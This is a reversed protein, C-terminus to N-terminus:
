PQRKTCTGPVPVPKKNRSTLTPLDADKYMVAYKDVNDVYLCDDPKSKPLKDRCEDRDSLCDGPVPLPNDNEARVIHPVQNNVYLCCPTDKKIVEVDFVDYVVNQCKGPVKVPSFTVPQPKHPTINDVYLCSTQLTDTFHKEIEWGECLDSDKTNLGNPPTNQKNINFINNIIESIKKNDRKKVPLLCHGNSLILQNNYNQLILQDINNLYLNCDKNKDNNYEDLICVPNLLSLADLCWNRIEIKNADDENELVLPNDNDLITCLYQVLPNPIQSGPKTTDTVAHPNLCDGPVPLPSDDPYKVIHPTQNDVYLCDDQCNLELCDGPIRLSYDEDNVVIHPIRNKVYLCSYITAEKCSKFADDLPEITDTFHKDIELLLQDTIDIDLEDLLKLVVSIDKVRACISLRSLIVAKIFKILKSANFGQFNPADLDVTIDTSITCDYETHDTFKLKRWSAIADEILQQQEKTAPWRSLREWFQRGDIPIDKNVITIRRDRNDPSHASDRNDIDEYPLRNDILRISYGNLLSEIYENTYGSKYVFDNFAGNYKKHLLIDFFTKNYYYDSEYIDIDYGAVKMIYQLDTYTGKFKFFGKLLEVQKLSFQSFVNEFIEELKFEPAYENYDNWFNFLDLESVTKELLAAITNLLNPNLNDLLEKNADLEDISKIDQFVEPLIKSFYLSDKPLM